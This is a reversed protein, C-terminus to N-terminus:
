VKVTFMTHTATMNVETLLWLPRFVKNFFDERAEESIGVVVDYLGYVEHAEMVPEISRLHKEWFKPASPRRIKIFIYASKRTEDCGEKEFSLGADNVILTNSDHLGTRNLIELLSNLQDFGEFETKCILDYSGFLLYAEKVLDSSRVAELANLLGSRTSIVGLVFARM